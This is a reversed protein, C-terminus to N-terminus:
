LDTTQEEMKEQIWDLYSYVRTFVDPFGKACPVGWSVVGIQIKHAPDVLPGGSDGHCAGGKKKDLTCVVSEHIKAQLMPVDDYRSKCEDQGIATLESFQLIDPTAFSAASQHKGWGSLVVRTMGNLQSTPLAIPQILDTFTIEEATRIIGIDHILERIDFGDHPTLTDLEVKVGGETQRYAGVVAFVNNPDANDNQLCHAATLIFRNSLISGGCFHRNVERRRLSVQYPFQGEAADDGGIIRPEYVSKATALAVCATLCILSITKM